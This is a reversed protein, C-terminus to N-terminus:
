LIPAITLAATPQGYALAELGDSVPLANWTNQVNGTIGVYPEAFCVQNRQAFVNPNVIVIGTEDESSL